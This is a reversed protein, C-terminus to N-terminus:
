PEGCGDDDILVVPIDTVPVPTAAAGTTITVALTGPTPTTFKKPRGKAKPTHIIVTLTKKNHVKWKKITFSTGGADTTVSKVTTTTPDNDDFRAGPDDIIVLHTHKKAKTNVMIKSGDADAM